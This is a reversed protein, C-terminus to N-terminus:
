LAVDFLTFNTCQGTIPPSDCKTCRPPSQVPGCGAWPAWAGGRQVFHKVTWRDVALTDMVTNSHLPGNSQPKLTAM